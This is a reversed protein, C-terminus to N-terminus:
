FFPVGTYWELAALAGFGLMALRGNVREAAPTFVSFPEDIAGAQITRLSGWVVLAMGAAVGWSPEAAQQLVTGGGGLERQAALLIGLM